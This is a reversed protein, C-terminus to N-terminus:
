QTCPRLPWVREGSRIRGSVGAQTIRQRPKGRPFLVLYGQFGHASGALGHQAERPPTGSTGVRGSIVKEDQVVWGEHFYSVWLFGRTAFTRAKAEDAQGAVPQVPLPDVHLTRRPDKLQGGNGVQVMSKPASCCLVAYEM